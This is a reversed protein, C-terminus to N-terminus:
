KLDDPVLANLHQYTQDRTASGPVWGLRKSIEWVHTDV